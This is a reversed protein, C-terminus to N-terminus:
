CDLPSGLEAVDVSHDADLDTFAVNDRCEANKGGTLAGAIRDGHLRANSGRITVSGLVDCALVQANNGEIVLNGEIM